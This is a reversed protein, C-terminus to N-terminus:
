LFTNWGVNKHEYKCFGADASPEAIVNKVQQAITSCIM